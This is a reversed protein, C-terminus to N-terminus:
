QRWVQALVQNVVCLLALVTAWLVHGALGLLVVASGFWALEFAFRPVGHLPRRARPAACTGWAVAYLLPGGLGLLAHVAAGSGVTVGCVGVAVLVALELLFSLALNAVKVPGLMVYPAGRPGGMAHAIILRM